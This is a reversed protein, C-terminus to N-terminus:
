SRERAPIAPEFGAPFMSTNGKLTTLYLSIEAVPCDTTWLLGVPDPTDSHSTSVEVILLGFGVLVASGHYVRACACVCVLEVSNAQLQEIFYSVCEVFCLSFM